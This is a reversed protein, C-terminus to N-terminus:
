AHLREHEFRRGRDALFAGRRGRAGGVLDRPAEVGMGLADRGRRDIRRQAGLRLGEDLPKQPRVAIRIELAPERIERRRREHEEARLVADDLRRHAPDVLVQHGVAVQDEHVVRRVRDTSVARFREGLDHAVEQLPVLREHDAAGLRHDVGLWDAEAVLLITIARQQDRNDAAASTRLRVSEAHAWTVVGARGSVGALRASTGTPWTVNAAV